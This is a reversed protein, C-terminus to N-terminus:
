GCHSALTSKEAVKSNHPDDVRGYVMICRNATGTIKAPGAYWAFTGDNSDSKDYDCFEGAKTGAVCRWIFVSQYKTVGSGFHTDVAAACNTGGNASSYYLYLEGYKTGTGNDTKLDYSDVLNGSCGYTSAASAQPALTIGGVLVLGAAALASLTTRM